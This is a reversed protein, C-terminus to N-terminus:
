ILDLITEGQDARLHYTQIGLNRATEIHQPSDDIFLTEEPKFGHTTLVHQFIRQEPKRMGVEFSYHMQEFYTNLEHDPHHQELYNNFHEIHIANTNSLLVLRQNSHLQSLLDLREIPLDLLMANWAHDIQQDTLPKQFVNRIGNRFQQPTAEGREFRDFLHTQQLQSYHLDFDQLGLAKFAEATRNYDLNLIVGGLDFIINPHDTLPISGTNTPM